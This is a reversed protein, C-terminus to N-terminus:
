ARQLLVAVHALVRLGEKCRSLPLGERRGGVAASCLPM